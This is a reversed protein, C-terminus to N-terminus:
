RLRVQHSNFIIGCLQEIARKSDKEIDLNDDAHVYRNRLKRIENMMDCTTYNIVSNFYLLNILNSLNCKRILRRKQEQDQELGKYLIRNSSILDKCIREVTFGAFVICPYFHGHVYLDSTEKWYDIYPGLEIFAPHPRIIERECFGELKENFCDKFGEKHRNRMKQKTDNDVNQYSNREGGCDLFGPVKDGNERNLINRYHENPNYEGEFRIENDKYHKNIFNSINQIVPLVASRTGRLQIYPIRPDYGCLVLQYHAHPARIILLECLRRNYELADADSVNEGWTSKPVNIEFNILPLSVFRRHPYWKHGIYIGNCSNCRKIDAFKQQEGEIFFSTDNSNCLGCKITM